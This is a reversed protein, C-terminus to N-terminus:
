WRRFSVGDSKLPSSLNSQRNEAQSQGKMAIWCRLQLAQPYSLRHGKTTVPLHIPCPRFKKGFLTTDPAIKLADRYKRENSAFSPAYLSHEQAGDRSQRLIPLVNELAFQTPCKDVGDQHGQGSGHM